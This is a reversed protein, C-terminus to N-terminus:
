FEIRAKEKLNMGDRKKINFTKYFEDIQPVPVNIGTGQRQLIKIQLM